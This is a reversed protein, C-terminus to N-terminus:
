GVMYNLLILKGVNFWGILVVFGLKYNLNDM